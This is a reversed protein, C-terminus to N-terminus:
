WYCPKTLITDMETLKDVTDYFNRLHKRVDEGKAMRRMMLNKLLTTTRAPGRSQYTAHLKDWVNKSTTCGKVQKLEAPSISLIIDSKAKEDNIEWTRVATASNPITASIESNVNQGSVYQWGETKVLLAQM